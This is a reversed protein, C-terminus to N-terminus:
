PHLHELGAEVGPAAHEHTGAGAAPQSLFEFQSFLGRYGCAWGGEFSAVHPNAARMAARENATAIYAKLLMRLKAGTSTGLFRRLAERDEDQWRPAPCFGTHTAFLWM